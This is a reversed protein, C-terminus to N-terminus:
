LTKKAGDWTALQIESGDVTDDFSFIVNGCSFEGMSIPFSVSEHYAM